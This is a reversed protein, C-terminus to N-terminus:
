HNNGFSFHLPILDALRLLTFHYVEREFNGEFHTTDFLGLHVIAFKDHLQHKLTM